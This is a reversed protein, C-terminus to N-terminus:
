RVGPDSSREDDIELWRLRLVACQQLDDGVYVYDSAELRVTAYQREGIEPPLPWATDIESGARVEVEGVAIGDVSVRVTAGDIEPRELCTARLLLRRGDRCPLSIAAFPALLGQGDVGGYVHMADAPRLREFDVEPRLNPTRPEVVPPLEARGREHIAEVVAEAEPWADLSLMPLLARQQIVGFFLLALRRMGERNWHNDEPSVWTTEDAAFERSLFVLQSADLDRGLSQAAMGNQGQWNFVHVYRGGSRQLARALEGVEDAARSWRSRSEDDHGRILPSSTDPWGMELAPHEGKIVCNARQRFQPTFRSLGGFGRVGDVDDLDNPVTVHLVLDPQLLGLQRRLYACESITNWSLIGIHLVEIREQGSRERLWQELFVGMRNEARERTGFV